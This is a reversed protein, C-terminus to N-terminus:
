GSLSTSQSMALQSFTVKGAYADLPLIQNAGVAAGGTGGGHGRVAFAIVVALVVLGLGGGLVWRRRSEDVPAPRPVFLVPAEDAGATPRQGEPQEASIKDQRPESM